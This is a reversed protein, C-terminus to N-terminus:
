RSGQNDQRLLPSRRYLRGTPVRTSWRAMKELPEADPLLRPPMLGGAAEIVLNARPQPPGLRHESIEIGDIRASEDPSCATNLRYAEPILQHAGLGSLRAVQIRDGGGELGAQIPKWYHAGLAGALASAFVTKGINTDTGAVVFTRSM